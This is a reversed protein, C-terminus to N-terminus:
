GMGTGNEERRKVIFYIDPTSTALLQLCEFEETYKRIQYFASKLAQGSGKVRIKVGRKEELAQSMYEVLNIKVPTLHLTSLKGM